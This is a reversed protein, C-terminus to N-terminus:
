ASSDDDFARKWTAFDQVEHRVIAGALPRDKVTQDEVPTIMAIAPPGKVGADRMTVMLDRSSLFANLREADNSALYVSLQNPNAADRNVHAAVIGAGKRAARSGDFARQWTDFDTVDHSVVAAISPLGSSDNQTHMANPGEKPHRAIADFTNIGLLAFSTCVADSCSGRALIAGGACARSIPRFQASKRKRSASRCAPDSPAAARKSLTSCDVALRRNLASSVASPPLSTARVGSPRLNLAAPSNAASRASVMCAPM